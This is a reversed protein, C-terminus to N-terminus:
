EIEEDFKQFVFKAADLGAVVGEQKAIWIAKAKKQDDIIADTTVDGSGIDEALAVDILDDLWEKDSVETFIM